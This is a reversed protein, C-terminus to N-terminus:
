KTPENNIYDIIEDVKRIVKSLSQIVVRLDDTNWGLQLEPGGTCLSGAHVKHPTKRKELNEIRKTKM